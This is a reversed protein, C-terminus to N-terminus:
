AKTKYGLQQAMITMVNEDLYLYTPRYCALKQKTQARQQYCYRVYKKDLSDVEPIVSM